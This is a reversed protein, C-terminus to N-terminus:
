DIRFYGGVGWDGGEDGAIEVAVGGVKGGEPVQESIVRPGIETGKGFTPILEGTM